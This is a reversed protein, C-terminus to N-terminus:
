TRRRARAAKVIEQDAPQVANRISAGGDVVIEQGNVFSAVDSLLFAVVAAIEEPVAMRGRLQLADDRAEAGGPDSSAAWSAESLPTRVAGPLVANVRVGIPGYEVALQRTMANIGGKTSAYVFAGPFGRIGQISSISVISGAAGTHMFRRVAEASGLLAGVLNVDIQRHLRELDVRHAPEDFEIGANNVWGLLAGAAEAADAARRTTEPDAVDGVIASVCDQEAWVHLAAENIDVAVVHWGQRVLEGTIAWGIGM